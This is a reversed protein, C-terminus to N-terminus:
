LPLGGWAEALCFTLSCMYLFSHVLLLWAVQDEVLIM